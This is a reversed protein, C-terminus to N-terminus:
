VGIEIDDVVLKFSDKQLWRMKETRPDEGYDYDACEIWKKMVGSEDATKLFLSHDCTLPDHPCNFHNM